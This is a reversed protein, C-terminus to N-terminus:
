GAMGLAARIEILLLLPSSLQLSSTYTKVEPFKQTTSIQNNHLIDFSVEILIAGESQTM